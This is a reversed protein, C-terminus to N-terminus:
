RVEQSPAAAAFPPLTPIGLGVLETPPGENVLTLYRDRTRADISPLSMTVAGVVEAWPSNMGELAARLVEVGERHAALLNGAIPSGSVASFELVVPLYDPLERADLEWGAARYADLFTVLAAGRRRTDGTAYYSLYPSCRRKLDFTTVYARQWADTGAAEAAAIFGELRDRVRPDLGAIGARVAPLRAFWEADPYDLLVSAAMHVRARDDPSLRVAAVQEEPMRRRPTVRGTLVSM